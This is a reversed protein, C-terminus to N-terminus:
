DHPADNCMKDGGARFFGSGNRQTRLKPHYPSPMVRVIM